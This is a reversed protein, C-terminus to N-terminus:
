EPGTLDVCLRWSGDPKLVVVLPHVWDTPKTVGEIINKKVMEELTKKIEDRAAFPLSRPCTVKCPVADDELYIHMPPGSMPPLEEGSYFVDDYASILKEIVVQVEENSADDALVWPMLKEGGSTSRIVAPFNHPVYGLEKCVEKSLLFDSKMGPCIYVDTSTSRVENALKVPMKGLCDVKEGTFASLTRGTVPKLAQKPFHTKHVLDPGAVCVDAGTDPVAHFWGDKCDKHEGQVLVEVGSTAENVKSVMLRGFKKPDDDKRPHQKRREPHKQWCNEEVHGPKKCFTCSVAAAANTTESRSRWTLQSGCDYYLYDTVLKLPTTKNFEL